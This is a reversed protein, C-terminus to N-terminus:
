FAGSQTYTVGGVTYTATWSDTTVDHLIGDGSTQAAFTYWNGPTITGGPSLTFTYVINGGTTTASQVVQGSFNNWLSSFTVNGTPITITVTLATITDTTTMYLGDQNYWPYNDPVASFSVPGGGGTIATVTLAVSVTQSLTGSAGTVTITSTGPTATAAATLTLTSASTASAPSFSATVGSPLGAASLAVSGAFGNTPAITIVTTGSGGQAISVTAPAASLTFGPPPPPPPPPATVTLGVTTTASLAGSTGTITMVSTGAAAAAGAALTLTTSGASTAPSFSATVGGPVGSIAFTVNGTFGGSPTVTITATGSSGAVLSLSAPNTALSFAPTPPPAAGAPTLLITTLSYPAAVVSFSNALGSVSASTIATSGQGYTFVTGTAAPTYGAVSVNATTSNAPDKNILLLALNGNAQQVAHVTLLANSSAAQILTDGGKGVNTLMQVGYYTPQPTDAAPENTSGNSLIGYDGYNATGYLSPSNNNNSSSNHLDWFDVSSAGNELWTLMNDAMFMANVLSVTQKGPNYAVSNTETVLIQINAANAGGYQAILAKVKTMMAAIGPTGGNGSQPAGLLGSDSESGPQQPYWHVIVFDIVSGCQTLVNSNWDPSVGDPWNGPATLVAGVKITPDVAKMANVFKAVNQGYTTPGHYTHLDTEWNGGYEANGYVENGIEWYKVGYGKTVNAYKVWAAATSPTAGANGAANSGYNVTLIPVAGASRAVGMFADFTNSPNAYGGQGPVITNTQWNYTDSTSGGPFRMATVGAASVLGPVASDLLNGDWVATNLGFATPPITALGTGATVTVTASTQARVTAGCGTIALFLLGAALLAAPRGLKFLSM